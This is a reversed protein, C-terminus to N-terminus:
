RGDDSPDRSGARQILTGGFAEAFEKEQEESM